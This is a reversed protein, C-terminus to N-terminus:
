GAVAEHLIRSLTGPDLREQDERTKILCALTNDILAPEEDLSAVPLGGLARAWDLTEAIGPRKRLDLERLAQVFRVLQRALRRDIDPLHAAVIELEKELTPYDLYFYLCRRRLADSLERTANSTLVVRPVSRARLTGLEPISIQFDSLLELLFAEFEEDARDIEDVLLVPAVACTIARLLPRPLLYKESFIQAEKEELSQESQEQLKIAIMQHAYNWEYVASEVDLGEYCQLRILECGHVAALAKALETKGVGADGEVLLPRQLRDMLALTTALADDAVYRSACLRAQLEIIEDQMTFTRRSRPLTVAVEPEGIGRSGQRHGGAPASM